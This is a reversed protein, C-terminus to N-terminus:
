SLGLSIARIFETWVLGVNDGMLFQHELLWAVSRRSKLMVHTLLSEVLGCM